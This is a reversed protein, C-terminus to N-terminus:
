IIHDLKTIQHVYKLPTHLLKNNFNTTLKWLPRSLSLSLSSKVEQKKIEFKFIVIKTTDLIQICKTTYISGEGQVMLGHLIM